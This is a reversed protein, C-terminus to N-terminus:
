GKWDPHREHEEHVYEAKHAQVFEHEYRERYWKPISFAFIVGVTLPTVLFGYHEQYIAHTIWVPQIAVGWIPAWWVKRLMLIKAIATTVSLVWDLNEVVFILYGM